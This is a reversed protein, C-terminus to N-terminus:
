NHQPPTTNRTPALPHSLQVTDAPAAYKCGDPLDGHHADSCSTPVTYAYYLVGRDDEAIVSKTFANPACEM